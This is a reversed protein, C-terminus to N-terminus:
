ANPPKKPQSGNLPIQCKIRRVSAYTQINIICPIIHKDKIDHKSRFLGPPPLEAFEEIDFPPTIVSIKDRTVGMALYEGYGKETEAIVRGARRLIRYGYIVDYLWKLAWKLNRGSRTTRPVSGHADLIYPIGYKRAYHQIVINQFSRFCHLHIVDFDKLQKRSEGIM